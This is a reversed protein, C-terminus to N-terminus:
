CQQNVHQHTGERLNMLDEDDSNIQDVDISLFSLIDALLSVTIWQRLNPERSEEHHSDFDVNQIQGRSLIQGTEPQVIDADIQFNFKKLPIDYLSKIEETQFKTQWTTLKHKLCHSFATALSAPVNFRLFRHSLKTDTYVIEHQKLVLPIREEVRKPKEAHLMVFTHFGGAFVKAM